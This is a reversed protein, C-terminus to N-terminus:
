SHREHAVPRYLISVEFEFLDISQFLLQLRRADLVFEVAIVGLMREGILHRRVFDLRIGADGDLVIRNGGFVGPLAGDAEEFLVDAPLTTFVLTAAYPISGRM